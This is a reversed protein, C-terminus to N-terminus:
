IILWTNAASCIVRMCEYQNVEQSTEGDITDGSLSVTVIGAGINKINFTQGTAGTPLTVTFATAKNCVVTSDTTLITYTDTVTTVKNIIGGNFHIANTPVIELNTGNHQLYDDDGAGFYLKTNDADLQIGGTVGTLAGGTLTAIGDTIINATVNGSTTLNYVGLNVDSVANSYPVYISAANSSSLYGSLDQDGTNNGSTNALRVLDIDIQSHTNTGINQLDTHDIETTLFHIATNSIHSFVNSITEYTSAANSQTLYISAANSITEYTSAANSQTLYISAANAEMLYGSLDQDGTNNGSTDALRILAIDIQSHSNNGINLINTHDIESETFHIASNSTHASVNVSTAYTSSVNSITIYEAAANTESLFGTHGSNEYDLNTLTNHNSTGGGGGLNADIIDMNVNLKEFADQPYDARNWIEVKTLNYNTTTSEPTSIEEEFTTQQSYDSIAIWERGLSNQISNLTYWKDDVVISQGPGITRRFPLREVPNSEHLRESSSLDIIGPINPTATIRM